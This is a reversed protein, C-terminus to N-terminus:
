SKAKQVDVASQGAIYSVCIGAISLIATQWAVDGALASGLTILIGGVALSLKKSIKPLTM